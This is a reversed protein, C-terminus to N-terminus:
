LLQEGAPSQHLWHFACVQLWFTICKQLSDVSQYKYSTILNFLVCASDCERSGDSWIQEAAVKAEREREREVSVYHGGLAPLKM